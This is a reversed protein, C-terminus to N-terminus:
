KCHVLVFKLWFKKQTLLRKSACQDQSAFMPMVVWGHGVVGRCISWGFLHLLVSPHHFHKTNFAQLVPGAYQHCSNHKKHCLFFFEVKQRVKMMGEVRILRRWQDTSPALSLLVLYCDIVTIAFSMPVCSLPHGHRSSVPLLPLLTPRHHIVVAVVLVATAATSSM